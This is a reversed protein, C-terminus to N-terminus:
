LATKIVVSTRGVLVIPISRRFADIQHHFGGLTKKIVEWFEGFTDCRHSGGRRGEEIPGSIVGALVLVQVADPRM